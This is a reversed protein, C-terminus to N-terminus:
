KAARVDYHFAAPIQHQCFYCHLLSQQLPQNASFGPRDLGANVTPNQIRAFLTKPLASFLDYKIKYKDYLASIKRPFSPQFIEVFLDSPIKREVETFFDLSM